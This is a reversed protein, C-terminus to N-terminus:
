VRSFMQKCNYRNTSMRTQKCHAATLRASNNAAHLARYIYPRYFLLCWLLILDHSLQDYSQGQVVDLSTSVQRGNCMTCVCRLRQGSCIRDGSHTVCSQLRRRAHRVNGSKCIVWIQLGCIILLNTKTTQLCCSQRYIIQVNKVHYNAEKKHTLM